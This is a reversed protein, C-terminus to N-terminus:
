GETQSGARREIVESVEPKDCASVEIAGDFTKLNVEAKGSVAFSKKETGTWHEASLNISCASAGLALVAASALVRLKAM